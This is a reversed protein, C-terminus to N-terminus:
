LSPANTFRAQFLFLVSAVTSLNHTISRYSDQVTGIELQFKALLYTTVWCHVGSLACGVICVWGHVGLWACGVMCVWGHVGLWACGVICVWCHVGLL